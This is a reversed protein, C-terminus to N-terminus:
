TPSVLTAIAALHLAVGGVVLAHFVEHYGFTAPWPDPRRAAYVRAGLTYLVVGAGEGFLEEMALDSALGKGESADTRVVLRLPDTRAAPAKPLELAWSVGRLVAAAAERREADGTSLLLGVTRGQM